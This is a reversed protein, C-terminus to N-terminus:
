VLIFEYYVVMIFWLGEYLRMVVGFYYLLSWDKLWFVNGGYVLVDDYLVFVLGFIVWVSNLIFVFM